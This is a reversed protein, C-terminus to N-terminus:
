QAKRDAPWQPKLGDEEMAKGVNFIAGALAESSKPFRQAMATLFTGQSIDRCGDHLMRAQEVDEGSNASMFAGTCYLSLLMLFDEGEVYGDDGPKRLHKQVMDHFLQMWEIVRPHQFLPRGTEDTQVQQPESMTM